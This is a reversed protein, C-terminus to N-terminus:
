PAASFTERLSGKTTRLEMSVTVNHRQFWGQPVELVYKIQETMSEVPTEDRPTLDHIELIRGEANIYACSLPVITNRMYFAAKRPPGPLVFLMGENEGMKERFMMGTMIEVPRAAIETELEQSGLYLKITTLKPQAHDLHGNPGPTDATKAPPPVPQSPPPKSGASPGPTPPTQSCGPGALLLAVLMWVARTALANM